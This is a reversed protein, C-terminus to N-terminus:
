PAPQTYIVGNKMVFLPRELARIDRTPDGPVAVVDAFLGPRLSGIRNEWGMLRAANSTGAVISEM